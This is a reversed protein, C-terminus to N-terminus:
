RPRKAARTAIRLKGTARSRVDPALGLLVADLTRRIEGEAFARGGSERALMRDRIMAEAAGLICSTIAGADLSPDLDGTLQGRRVLGRAIESFAVFGASLRVRSGEGRLRRGEFLLLKALEHDRALAASISQFVNLLTARSNENTEVARKVRENLDNWAQNFLAELLGAKGGFYRM